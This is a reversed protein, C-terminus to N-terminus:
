IFDTFVLLMLPNILSTFFSHLGERAFKTMPLIIWEMQRPQSRQQTLTVSVIFLLPVNDCVAIYLLFHYSYIMKM